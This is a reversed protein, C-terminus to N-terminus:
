LTLDPLDTPKETVRLEAFREFADQSGRRGDIYEVGVYALCTSHWPLARGRGAGRSNLLDRLQM